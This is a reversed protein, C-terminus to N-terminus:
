IHQFYSLHFLLPNSDIIIKIKTDSPKLEDDFGSMYCWAECSKRPNFHNKILRNLSDGM